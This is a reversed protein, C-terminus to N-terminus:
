KQFNIQNYGVVEKKDEHYEKRSQKQSHFPLSIDSRKELAV